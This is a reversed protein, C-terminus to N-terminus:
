SAIHVLEIKPSQCLPIKNKKFATIWDFFDMLWFIFFLKKKNNGEWSILVLFVNVLM